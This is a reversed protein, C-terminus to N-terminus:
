ASKKTLKGWDGLHEPPTYVAHPDELLGCIKAHEDRWSNSEDWCRLTLAGDERGLKMTAVQRNGSAVVALVGVLMREESDSRLPLKRQLHWDIFAFTIRHWLIVERDIDRERMFGLEWQELTPVSFRGVVSYSWRMMDLLFEPINETRLKGPVFKAADAPFSALRREWKKKGTKCYGSQGNRAVNCRGGCIPCDAIRQM